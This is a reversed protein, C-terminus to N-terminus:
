QSASLEYTNYSNNVVIMEKKFQRVSLLVLHVIFVAIV